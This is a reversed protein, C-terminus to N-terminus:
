RRFARRAFGVATLGLGLLLASTGADPLGVVVTGGNNPDGAMLTASGAIALLAILVSKM